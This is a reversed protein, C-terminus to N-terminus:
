IGALAKTVGDLSVEVVMVNESGLPRFGVKMQKGARLQQRLEDSLLTSAVCGGPTCVLFPLAAEANADIQYVMGPRLDLGLPLEFSFVMGQAGRQAVVRLLRRGTAAAEGEGTMQLVQVAQCQEKGGLTACIVEWKGHTAKQKWEPAPAPRTPTASPAQAFTAGGVGLGAMWCALLAAKRVALPRM